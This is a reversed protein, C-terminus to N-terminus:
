SEFNKESHKRWIQKKGGGGGGGGGGKLDNIVISLYVSTSNDEAWAM